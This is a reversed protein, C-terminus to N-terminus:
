AGKKIDNTTNTNESPGTGIENRDILFGYIAEAATVVKDATYNAAIAQEVCWQRLKMDAQLDVLRKQWAQNTAEVARIIAHEDAPM